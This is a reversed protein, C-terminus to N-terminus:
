LVGISAVSSLLGVNDCYGFPSICIASLLPLYCISNYVQVDDIQPVVENIVARGSSSVESEATWGRNEAALPRQQEVVQGRQWRGVPAVDGGAHYPSSVPHPLTRDQELSRETDRYLAGDQQGRMIGALPHHEPMNQQQQQQHEYHHYPQPQEQRRPPFFDQETIRMLHGGGDEAPTVTVVPQSSTMGDAGSQQMGKAAEISITFGPM